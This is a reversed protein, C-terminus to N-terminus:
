SDESESEAHADERSAEKTKKRESVLKTGKDPTKSYKHM